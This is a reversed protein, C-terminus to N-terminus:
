GKRPLMDALLEFSDHVASYSVTLQEDTGANADAGFRALAESFKKLEKKFEEVNAAATGQPVGLKVIVDGLRIM